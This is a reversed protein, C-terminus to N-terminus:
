VTKRRRAYWGFGALASGLLALSAPEPVAAASASFTGTISGSGGSLTSGIITASPTFGAVSLGIAPASLQNIVSSTFSVVDAPSSAALTLSAGPSVVIDAFSGSLCNGGAGCSASLVSFSGAYHQLIAAGVLTAPGTSTASLSFTASLPTMIPAASNIFTVQVPTASSTLTTVTDAGNVTAVLGTASTGSFNLIPAANAASPALLPGALLAAAALFKGRM